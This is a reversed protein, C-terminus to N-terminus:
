LRLFHKLQFLLFLFTFCVSIYYILKYREHNSLSEGTANLAILQEAISKRVFYDFAGSIKFYMEKQSNKSLKNYDMRCGRPNRLEGYKLRGTNKMILTM